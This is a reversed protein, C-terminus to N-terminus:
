RLPEKEPSVARDPSVTRDVSASDSVQRVEAGEVDPSVLHQEGDRVEVVAFDARQPLPRSWETQPQSQDQSGQAAADVYTIQPEGAVMTVVIRDARQPIREVDRGDVALAEGLKMERPTWTVDGTKPDVHRDFTVDPDKPDSSMPQASMLQAYRADGKGGSQDGSGADPGPDGEGGGGAAAQRVRTDADSDDKKTRGNNATVNTSMARLRTTGLGIMNQVTLDAASYTTGVVSAFGGFSVGLAPVARHAKGM